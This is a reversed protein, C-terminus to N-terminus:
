PMLSDPRRGLDNRQNADLDDQVDEAAVNRPEPSVQPEPSLRTECSKLTGQAQEVTQQKSEQIM